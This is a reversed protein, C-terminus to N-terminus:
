YATNIFQTNTGRGCHTHLVGVGLIVANPPLAKSVYNPLSLLNQTMYFLAWIAKERLESGECSVLFSVAMRVLGRSGFM